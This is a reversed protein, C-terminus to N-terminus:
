NNLNDKPPNYDALTTVRVTDIGDLSWIVPVMKMYNCKPCMDGESGIMEKHMPCGVILDGAADVLQDNENKNSVTKEAPKGVVVETSHDHGDKVTKTDGGCASVLIALSAFVGIMLKNVKM